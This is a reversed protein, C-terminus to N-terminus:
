PKQMLKFEDRIHSLASIADTASQQNEPTLEPFVKALLCVADSLIERNWYIGGNDNSQNKKIYAILEPTLIVGEIEIHKKIEETKM